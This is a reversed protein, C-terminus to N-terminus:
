NIKVTKAGITDAFYKDHEVLLMTPQFRQILKEIQMRSFVDIFNYPEDWIYLHVQECLSAALLLKKKQGESYDSINKEFQVREFDLQRLITMLLSLEIGRVSAYKQLTGGLMSTDQSVYSIKVGSGITITGEAPVIEGLIAKIISSKGCGNRGQLLIREGNHIEFSIQQCVTNLDYKISVKDVSVLRDSRYKLPFLKLETEQEIDQLLQRKEKIEERQRRELNKRRQQMRRSKEGLYARTGIFRDEKVPNYGIKRKEVMDAWEKSQRAASELRKIDKRLDANRALEFDDQKEKNEKWVSFNGKSVTISNRNIALIHDVCSDLFDREHSVLIFGQKRKLYRLMTERTEMDLHNAPEDLLLFNNEDSFLYALMVRTREGFSLSGFTRYLIDAEMSLYELERIVKWLEHDPFEQDMLEIVPNQWKRVPINVPFYQFCVNGTITGSYRYEPRCVNDNQEMLLQLFTSKGKGNRGILGLKWDTDIQFSVNEFVNDYSSEYGFTLNDVKIMSM